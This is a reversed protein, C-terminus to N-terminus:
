RPEPRKEDEENKIIGSLLGGHEGGSWTGAYAHDHFLVRASYARQGGPMSLNDVIVVATDGAWKVQVPLPIVFERNNYKMKANVVWSDGSVKSVSVIHYSDEKEPGLVGEKLSAWRGTLSAKSLMAKFKEELEEQSLVPRALAPSSETPKAALEAKQDQAGAPRIMLLAIAALCFFNRTM